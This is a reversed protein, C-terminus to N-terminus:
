TFCLYDFQTHVIYKCSKHFTGRVCFLILKFILTIDISMVIDICTIIFIIYHTYCQKIHHKNQWHKQNYLNRAYWDGAEAEDQPSAHVWIGFKGRSYWEPVNYQATFSEWTPEFTGKEYTLKEDVPTCQWLSLAMFFVLVKRM